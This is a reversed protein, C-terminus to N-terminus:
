SEKGTDPTTQDPEDGTPRREDAEPLLRRERVVVAWRQFAEAWTLCGGLLGSLDGPEEDAVAEDAVDHCM